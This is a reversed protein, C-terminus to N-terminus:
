RGEPSSRIERVIAAFLFTAAGKFPARCHILRGIHCFSGCEGQDFYQYNNGNDGTQHRDQGGREIGGPGLGAIRDALRVKALEGMICKHGAPKEVPEASKIEDAYYFIIPLEASRFYNRWKETFKDKLEM